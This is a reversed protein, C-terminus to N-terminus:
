LKAKPTDIMPLFLDRIDGAAESLFFSMRESSLGKSVINFQISNENIMYAIGFGEDVVQSWGYGNFYESSLQSTSLYWTGSYGYARDKYIDPLEEGEKLCKKLGFLHRDVGKGDSADMIYRVHADLAAKFRERCEEESIEPDAMADCWAVSEDSVSRCTETRGQQFRRTSASEYTPRNKGYMKHYALQIVMQVYADPSCKFRKILGKGYGQYAQVRLDHQAMLADFDSTARHVERIITENLQFKIPEPEALDSRISPDSLDLRNSFIMMNVYDNLRHTPTGDMMSHEGLFGSTGNDNVIFQLPKDYWRNQGDGHWYQRAREELTIPSADDLCLVFSAAQISEIAQANAPHASLLSDRANHWTNRNQSTLAGVAHSTTAIQYIRAFQRELESVNLQQGGISYPVKFFQNKRIVLIYQNAKWDYKVPFDTSKGPIRCSNFMWQYSEMSIPLKKMYEPELTGDDVQKRFELIATSLAAARKAPHRRRRDDKHSYFYSVYPVVPDRYSLYAADNWWEYIWNRHRPDERRAQLRKQLKEGLSGPKIFASVARETHGYESSNLLPHVSKLYRKATEELTPVPLRPISDEFRLMSGKSTDEQYGPSILNMLM